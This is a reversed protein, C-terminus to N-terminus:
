LYTPTVTFDVVNFISMFWNAASMVIVERLYIFQKMIYIDLWTM